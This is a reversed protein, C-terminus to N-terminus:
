RMPTRRHDFRTQNDFLSALLEANGTDTTRPDAEASPYHAISEAIESVESDPLPPQCQRRNVEQLAAEIAEHPMGRRRMTGALSILRANRQGEAITQGELGAQAPRKKTALEMLWDPTPAIECADLVEYRKGSEHPSPPVVIYGGNARLDVGQYGGLGVTNRIDAGNSNRYIYHLGGGGTRHTRTRPLPGYQAEIAAKSELGGKKADFDLVVLGDTVLGIGATPRKGWYERVGLKTQTTDKLGHKTLPKKDPGVPFIRFEQAVYDLATQLVTPEERTLEKAMDCRKRAVTM